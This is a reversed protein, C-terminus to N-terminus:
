HPRRSEVVIGVYEAGSSSIDFPEDRGPCYLNKLGMEATYRGLTLDGNVIWATIKIGAEDLPIDKNIVVTDGPMIEPIMARGTYLYEKMSSNLARVNNNDHPSDMWGNPKGTGAELKRAMSDGISRASGSPSTVGNLIQSIYASSTGCDRALQAASGAEQILALLNKLRVAKVDM